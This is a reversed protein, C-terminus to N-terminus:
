SNENKELWEIVKDLNFRIIRGKRFCPMGKKIWSYITNNHIKLEKSLDNMNLLM